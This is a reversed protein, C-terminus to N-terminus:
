SPAPESGVKAGRQYLEQIKASVEKFNMDTDFVKKYAELAEPVRGQKEYAAALTYLMGKAEQSVVSAGTVSKQYQEIALDMLNQRELCIGLRFTAQRRTRPDRSAFQYQTAADKYRKLQYFINALKFRMPFDQPRAKVRKQYDDLAFQTRQALLQQAQAKTEENASLRKIELDMEALKLDGMREQVQFNLPDIERAKQYAARAQEWDQLMKYLDGLQTLHRTNEPEKEIDGMVREIAAEIDERTRIDQHSQEIKKSEDESKLGVRFGEKGAEEWHGEKMSRRAALDRIKIDAQRDTPLHHHIEEFCQTAKPFDGAEDYLEGLARLRRVHSAIAMKGQPKGTRARLDEYVVIATESFGGKAAAKALLTLVFKNHPDKKLFAECAAMAKEHKRILHLVLASVLSGLGKIWAAPSSSTVGLEQFKRIEVAHLRKRADTHNPQLDLLQLYLDIAYDYNRREFAVEAKDLLKTVDM